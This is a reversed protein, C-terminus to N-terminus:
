ERLVVPEGDRNIVLSGNREVLLASFSVAGSGPPGQEGREGQEGQEGQQGRLGMALEFVFGGDMTFTVNM